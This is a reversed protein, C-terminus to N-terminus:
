DHGALRQQGEVSNKSQVHFNDSQNLSSTWDPWSVPVMSVWYWTHVFSGYGACSITYFIVWVSTKEEGYTYLSSFYFYVGCCPKITNEGIWLVSNASPTRLSPALPCCLLQFPFCVKPNLASRQVEFFVHWSFCSRTGAERRLPPLVSQFPVPDQYASM